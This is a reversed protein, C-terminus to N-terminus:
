LINSYSKKVAIYTICFILRSVYIAVYNEFLTNISLVFILNKLLKCLQLM